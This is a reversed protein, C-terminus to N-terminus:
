YGGPDWLVWMPRHRNFPRHMFDHTLQVEEQGCGRQPRQASPGPPLSSPSVPVAGLSSLFTPATRAERWEGGLTSPTGTHEGGM